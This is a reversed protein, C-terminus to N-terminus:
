RKEPIGMPEVPKSERPKPAPKTTSEDVPKAKGQVVLTDVYEPACEYTDGTDYSEGMHTHPQLAEMTVTEPAAEKDRGRDKDDAM